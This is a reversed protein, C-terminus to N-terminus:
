GEKLLEIFEESDVVMEDLGNEFEDPYNSTSIDFNGMEWDYGMDIVTEVGNVIVTKELIANYTERLEEYKKDLEKILAIVEKNSDM